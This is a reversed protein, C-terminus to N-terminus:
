KKAKKSPHQVEIGTKDAIMVEIPDVITDEAEEGAMDEEGVEVTVEEVAAEGERIAVKEVTVEERDRKM